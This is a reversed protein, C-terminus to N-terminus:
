QASERRLKEESERRVLARLRSLYPECQAEAEGYHPNLERELPLWTSLPAENHSIAAEMMDLARWIKAERTEMAQMEAFLDSFERRKSASLQALLADVARSEQAEDELTKEFSPIDGIVAEGLDHILCMRLVRERNVEPFEEDILLWLAALRFCHEAVSERRGSASWSHRFTEKLRALVHLFELTNEETM